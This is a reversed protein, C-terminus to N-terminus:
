KIKNLTNRKIRKLSRYVIYFVQWFRWSLNHSPMALAESFDIVTDRNNRIFNEVKSFVEEGSTNTHICVTALGSIKEPLSHLCPIFKIGKYDFPYRAYGDTVFKFGNAKLALLTNQDYSHAPAMFIDTYIGHSRLIEKGRSIKELQEAYPLGAFESYKNCRLIGPNKNIYYHNLGHQAILWGQEQLNKILDWFGINAPNLCLSSDKNDPVVGILPKVNYKDFIEKMRNFKIIDMGPTIDDLRFTCYVKPQNKLLAKM